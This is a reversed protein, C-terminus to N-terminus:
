SGGTAPRATLHRLRARTRLRIPVRTLCWALLTLMLALYALIALEKPGWCIMAGTAPMVLGLWARVLHRPFSCRHNNPLLHGRRLRKARLYDRATESRPETHLPVQTVTIQHRHLAAVKDPNNTLLRVQRLGLRKLFEAATDYNRYDHQYGLEDYAAFTDYGLAQTIGLGRAKVELGAGRGEQELYLLVGADEWQIRDMAQDLEPGCDCDDSQLADGYLCRSHIRVLPPTHRHEVDGIIVAHGGDHGPIPLVRVTM